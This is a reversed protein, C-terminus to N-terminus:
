GVAGGSTSRAIVTGARGTGKQRWIKATTGRVESRTLTSAGAVRSGSMQRTLAQHMLGTNVPAAFLADPLTVSRESRKGAATHLTLKM